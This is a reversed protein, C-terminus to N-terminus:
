APEIIIRKNNILADAIKRRASTLLRHFTPQSINMQRASEKQQLCLSDHLRIAELEEPVVLIQELCIPVAPAFDVSVHNQVKKIKPPRAM